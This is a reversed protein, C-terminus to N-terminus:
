THLNWCFNLDFSVFQAFTPVSGYRAFHTAIKKKKCFKTVHPILHDKRNNDLLSINFTPFSKLFDNSTLKISFLTLRQHRCVRWFCSILTWHFARFYRLGHCQNPFFLTPFLCVRCFRSARRNLKEDLVFRKNRSIHNRTRVLFINLIRFLHLITIKIYNKQPFKM